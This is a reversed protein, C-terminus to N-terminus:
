VKREVNAGLTAVKLIPRHLGYTWDTSFAVVKSTNAYAEPVCVRPDAHM